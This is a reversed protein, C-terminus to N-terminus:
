ENYWQELQQSSYENFVNQSEVSKLINTADQIQAERIHNIWTNNTHFSSHTIHTLHKWM